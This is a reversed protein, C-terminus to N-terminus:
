HREGILADTGTARRARASRRNWLKTMHSGGDGPAMGGPPPTGFCTGHRSQMAADDAIRAEAAPPRGQLMPRIRLRKM